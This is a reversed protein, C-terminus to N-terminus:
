FFGGTKKKQRKVEKKDERFLVSQKKKSLVSGQRQTVLKTFGAKKRTYATDKKLLKATREIGTTVEKRPFMGSIQEEPVNGLFDDSKGKKEKGRRSETGVKQSFLTETPPKRQFTEFQTLQPLNIPLGKQTPVKGFPTGPSAPVIDDPTIPKSPSSPSPRTIFTPSPQPKAM